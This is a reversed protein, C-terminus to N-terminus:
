IKISEQRAPHTDQRCASATDPMIGDHFVNEEYEDDEGEEKQAPREHAQAVPHLAM